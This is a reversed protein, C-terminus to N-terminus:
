DNYSLISARQAPKWTSIAYLTRGKWGQVLWKSTEDIMFDKHYHSRVRHIAEKVTERDISFQVFGARQNRIQWQRYTEPREVREWGECGIVNLSEIRFRDREILLRDPNDRPVLTDLMDFMASFHFLAERFRTVYFPSNYGGNVIGHIFIDPNIQRILNLFVNKPSDVAASEDLLCKARYLCNVAIVEDEDIKLEEVKIADWRKAIGNFEFPVKFEKAYAALRLGTEEVREAPRFGPELIDIGTIRLKPPGGQRMSLRAVHVCYGRLIDATSTRKSVIGKYIQSGTGALRADLADAFCQALRQNGDGVLSAYQKIQKLLENVNQHDDAAIAQGCRILLARVDVEEKKGNQKKRRGKGSKTVKSRGNKLLLKGTGNQLTEWQTSIATQGPLSDSLLVMDFLESRVSLDPYIAIQKQSREEEAVLNKASLNKRGSMGSASDECEDKKKEKLVLDNTGVNLEPPEVVTVGFNVFPNNGIPLFKTAEEVGKKFQCITQIKDNWDPAHITSNQSDALGDVTSTVVSCTSQSINSYIPFKPSQYESLNQMFSDNPSDRNEHVNQELSPPYKKGLVEHLSKEAAQLKFSDQLLCTKEEMDEEMLMKNIYRLVADSFDCDELSYEEHNVSSSTAVKSSNPDPRHYNVGKFRHDPINNELRPAAVINQICFNSIPENPYASQPQSRMQNGNISGLHGRFRKDM